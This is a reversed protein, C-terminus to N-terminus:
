FGTEPLREPYLYLDTQNIVVDSAYRPLLRYGYAPSGDALYQSVIGVVVLPQGVEMSPRQIPADPDLYIRAWGSGDDMWFGGGSVFDVAQGNLMVLMGEYPELMSGTQIPLPAIADPQGYRSVDQPSSVTIQVEGHYNRTRGIVRVRDGPQFWLNHYSPLYVRVGSTHDQVYMVRDSYIGAPATVWGKIEVWRNTPLHRVELISGKEPAAVPMAANEEAPTPRCRQNCPEAGDPLCCWSVDYGPSRDYFFSDALSGDPRFLLLQDGDNNLPLSSACRDVRMYRDSPLVADLPFLYSVGGSESIEWGGLGLVRGQGGHLEFWEDQFDVIGNGDWDWAHPAPLVENISVNEVERQGSVWLPATVALPDGAEQSVEVWYAHGPRAEVTPRWEAPLASIRTSTLPTADERVTLSIEAAPAYTGALYVTLELTEAPTVESGMWVDGARLTLALGPERTAFTRRRRFADALAQPTLEAAVLGTRGAGGLDWIGAAAPAAAPALRWGRALARLWHTQFPAYPIATTRDGLRWTSVSSAVDPRLTLDVAKSDVATLALGAIADPQTALWTYFDPLAGTAAAGAPPVDNLNFVNLSLGAEPFTQEFGVMSVFQGASTSAVQQESLGASESPSLDELRDTTVLFHLGQARALAFTLVPPTSGASYTTYAGVEGWYAYMGGPLPAPPAPEAPPDPLLFPAGPAPTYALFDAAMSDTDIPWVRQLSQGDGAKISDPQLLAAEYDGGAYAVSDLIENERGLLLVEDGANALAWQGSSWDTYRELNPVQPTDPYDPGGVVLEGDPYFGFRAAFQAANKAIFVCDGAALRWEAPLRYMGEGAAQNEADGIKLGELGVAEPQANCLEVFEEGDTGSGPEHYYVESLLVLPSHTTSNAAKPTGNVPNGDSDLGVRHFADNTAWNADQDAADPRSREMSRTGPAGTGAPWPGGDANVSDIRLTGTVLELSEGEVGLLDFSQVQDAQVDSVAEETREVLYYDQAAINGALELFCGDGSTAICWHSLDVVRDTNNALELWQHTPDAVTGAWAVENIVVDGPLVPYTISNRRRPTGCIANGGSDLGNHILANNTKWDDALYSSQLALREMSCPFAGPTGAPWVGGANVVDVIEGSPGVLQLVEGEDDLAGEYVFDALVDAVTGDDDRELLFYEGPAIQGTLNIGPAGDLAVLSWGTLDISEMGPNYLEIWEDDPQATTGGWGVENVVLTAPSSAQRSQLRVSSGTGSLRGVAPFLLGAPAATSVPLVRISTFFLIIAVVFSMSRLTLGVFRRM